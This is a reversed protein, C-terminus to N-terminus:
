EQIGAESLSEAELCVLLDLVLFEPSQSVPGFCCGSSHWLHTSMLPVKDLHLCCGRHGAEYVSQTRDLQLCCGAHGAECVSKGQDASLFSDLNVEWYSLHESSLLREPFLLFGLRGCDLTM